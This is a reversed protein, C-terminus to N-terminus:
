ELRRVKEAGEGSITAMDVLADIDTGAITLKQPPIAAAEDGAQTSVATIIFGSEGAAASLKFDKGGVTRTQMSLSFPKPTPYVAIM